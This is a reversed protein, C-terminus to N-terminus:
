RGFMLAKRVKSRVAKEDKAQIYYAGKNDETTGLKVSKPAADRVVKLIKQASKCSLKGPRAADDEELSRGGRGKGGRGKGGKPRGKGKSIGKGKGGKGGNRGKGGKGGKGKGGKSRQSDM